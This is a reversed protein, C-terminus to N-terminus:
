SDVMLPMPASSASPLPRSLPAAIVSNMTLAAQWLTLTTLSLVACISIDLPNTLSVFTTPFATLM